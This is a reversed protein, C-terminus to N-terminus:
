WVALFGAPKDKLVSDSVQSELSESSISMYYIGYEPEEFLALQEEYPRYEDDPFSAEMIRYIELFQSIVMRQLM